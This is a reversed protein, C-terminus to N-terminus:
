LVGQTQNYQDVVPKLLELWVKENVEGVHKYRIVGQKDIVYTEPAGYVGIDLGLRGSVDEINFDYPNGLQTLWALAKPKDDKYNLGIIPVQYRKAIDMLYPHEVRCTPCWTAWVNLLVVRDTLDAETVIREADDLSRISCAPVPRDILASPLEQPNYDETTLVSFFVGALAVFFLLPLFLRLRGM